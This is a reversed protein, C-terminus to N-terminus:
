SPTPRGTSSGQAKGALLALTSDKPFATRARSAAALADEAKHAALLSRVQGAAWVANKADLKVVEAFVPIAKEDEHLSAYTRALTGKALASSPDLRVADELGALADKARYLALLAAGRVALARAREVPALVKPEVLAPEVHGLAATPDKKELLALAGREVASSLHQPALKLAAAFSADARDAKGMTAQVLGLAHWGRASPSAKMAGDLVEAAAPLQGQQVLAEAELLQGDADLKSARILTLAADPQKQLLAQGVEAKVRDPDTKSM